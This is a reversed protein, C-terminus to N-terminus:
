AVEEIIRQENRRRSHASQTKRMNWYKELSDISQHASRIAEEMADNRAIDAISEAFAKVDCPEWNQDTDDDDVWKRFEEEIRDRDM